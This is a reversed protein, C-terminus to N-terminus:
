LILLLFLRNLGVFLHIHDSMVEMQITEYEYKVGIDQLKKKLFIYINGELVSYRFKPCFIIHYQCLYKCHATSKYESMNNITKDM